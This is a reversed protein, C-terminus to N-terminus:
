LKLFKDLSQFDSDMKFIFPLWCFSIELLEDNNDLVKINWPGVIQWYVM